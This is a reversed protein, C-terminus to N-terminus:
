DTFFATKEIRSRLDDYYFAPDMDVSIHGDGLWAMTHNYEPERGYEYDEWRPHRLSLIAHQSSGPWLTRIKAAGTKGNKYWSKCNDTFVTRAFYADTYKLFSEVAEKKVVLSKYGENACKNLAKAMYAIQAEMVILLSGSGVGTQTGLISFFNPMDAVTTGLYTRAEGKWADQLNVGGAGIIPFGPVNSTDFGTACIVADLEYEEGTKTRIGNETFCELDDSVFNVNDAVLADLYGPGPTLRKCGLPFAPILTSAIEPKRELKRRMTADVDARLATQMASGRHTVYHVSGLDREVMRRFEAYFAPDKLRAKEDDSFIDADAGGM